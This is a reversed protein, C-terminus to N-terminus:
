TEVCHILLTAGSLAGRCFLGYQEHNLTHMMSNRAKGLDFLRSSSGFVEGLALSSFHM